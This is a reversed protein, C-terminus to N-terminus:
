APTLREKLNRAYEAIGAVIDVKGSSLVWQVQLGDSVAISERAILEMDVDTRIEGRDAAKQLRAAFQAVVAEYRESLRAHAPSSADAAESISLVFLEILGPQALFRRTAEVMEDFMGIASDSGPLTEWWAATEQLRREAVAQLLVNKSRFHHALGSESIGVAEAIASMPTAYYGDAGFMDVAVDIIKERRRMGTPYSGTARLGM